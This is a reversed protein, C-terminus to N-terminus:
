DSSGDRLKIAMQCVVHRQIKGTNARPMIPIFYVGGNLHKAAIFNDKISEKIDVASITQNPRLVIVAAAAFDVGDGTPLGVVVVNQVDFQKEIFRELETPAIQFGAVKFMDKRREVLFLEKKKVLMDWIV